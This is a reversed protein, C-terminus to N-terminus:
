ISYYTETGTEGHEHIANDNISDLDSKNDGNCCPIFLNQIVTM